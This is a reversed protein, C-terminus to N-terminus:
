FVSRWASAIGSGVAKVGSNIGNTLGDPLKDYAWKGGYYVGAGVGAAIVVSVIGPGLLAATAITAGASLAGVTVAKGPEMGNKIDMYMGVPAAVAPALKGFRVAYDFTKMSTSAIQPNNDLWGAIAMSVAVNSALKSGQSAAQGTLLKPAANAAATMLPTGYNDFLTQNGDKDIVSRTGDSFAIVKSGDAGATVEASTGDGVNPIYLTGDDQGYITRGREDTTVYVVRHTDVTGDSNPDSRTIVTNGHSTNAQTIINGQDGTVASNSSVHGEPTDTETHISGDYNPTSHASYQSGNPATYTTDIGGDATPTSQGYGLGSTGPETYVTGDPYVVSNSGDPNATWTTVGGNGDPVSRTQTTTGDANDITTDVSGGSDPVATSTSTITGGHGDQATTVVSGASTATSTSTQPQQPQQFGSIGNGDPDDPTCQGIETPDALIPFLASDIPNIHQILDGNDATTYWTKQPRGASDYAWPRAVSRVPNGYRDYVTASGDPNIRTTGGDPVDMAFRYTRPSTPDNILVLRSPGVQARHSGGRQLLSWSRPLGHRTLARGPRPHAVALAAAGAILWATLPITSNNAPQPPGAKEISDDSIQPRPSLHPSSPTGPSPQTATSDPIPTPPAADPTAHPANPIRDGSGVPEGPVPIPQGDQRPAPQGPVPVIPTGNGEGPGPGPNGAIAPGASSDQNGPGTTTPTNQTPPPTYTPVNICPWGAGYQARMQDCLADARAQPAAETQVSM